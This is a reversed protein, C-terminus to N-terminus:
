SSNCAPQWLQTLEAIDHIFDITEEVSAAAGVGRQGLECLEAVAHSAELLHPLSQALQERGVQVLSQRKQVVFQQRRSGVGDFAAVSTVPLHLLANITNAGHRAQDGSDREVHKAIELRKGSAKGGFGEM